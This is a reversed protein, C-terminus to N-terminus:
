LEMKLIGTHVSCERPFKKKLSLCYYYGHYSALQVFLEKGPLMLINFLIHPHLSLVRFCLKFHIETEQKPQLLGSLSIEHESGSSKLITM